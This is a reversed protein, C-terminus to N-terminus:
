KRTICISSNELTIARDTYNFLEVNYAPMAERIAYVRSEDIMRRAALGLLEKDEHREEIEEAPTVKDRTGCVAWTAMQRLIMFDQKNEIGHRKLFDRSKPLLQEYSCAHRCCMAVLLGHLKSNNIISSHLISKITLDTAMGCLHKSICVIQDPTETELFKDLHLHEIDMKSRKLKPMKPLGIEGCDKIIKSDMKMRNNGRDILGFGYTPGITKCDHLVCTNVARSLEAKGCGFEIYFNDCSLLSNEKLNGILSSQQLIHKQNEKAELWPILAPHSNARYELPEVKDNFEKLISIMREFDEREPGAVEVHDVEDEGYKTNFNKVYWSEHTEKPKANCKKLHFALDKLWVSHKPDLPCPVREGKAEVQKKSNEHVMHESCYRNGKKRQMSCQRNKHPLFFECRNPSPKKDKKTKKQRKTSSCETVTETRSM